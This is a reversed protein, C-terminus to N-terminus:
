FAHMHPASPRTHAHTRGERGASALPAAAAPGRQEDPRPRQRRRPRPAKPQWGTSPGSPRCGASPIGGFGSRTPARPGFAGGPHGARMDRLGMYVPATGAARAMGPGGIGHVAGRWAMGRPRPQPTAASILLGRAPRRCFEFPAPHQCEPIFLAAILRRTSKQTNRHFFACFPTHSRTM